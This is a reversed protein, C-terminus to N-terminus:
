PPITPEDSGMGQDIVPWPPISPEDRGMGQDIVPNM